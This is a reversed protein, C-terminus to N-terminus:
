DDLLQKIEKMRLSSNARASNKVNSNIINSDTIEELVLSEGTTTRQYIKGNVSTIGMPTDVSRTGMFLPTLDDLDLGLKYDLVWNASSTLVNGNVNVLAGSIKNQTDVNQFRKYSLTMLTVGRVLFAGTPSKEVGNIKKIPLKNQYEVYNAKQEIIDKDKLWVSGVDQLIVEDNMEVKNGSNFNIAAFLVSVSAETKSNLVTSVRINPKSNTGPDIAKIVATPTLWYFATGDEYTFVLKGVLDTMNNIWTGGTVFYYRNKVDDGILVESKLEDFTKGLKILRKQPSCACLLLCILIISPTKM